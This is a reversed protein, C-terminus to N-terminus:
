SRSTMSSSYRSSVWYKGEGPSTSCSGRSIASSARRVRESTAVRTERSPCWTSARPIVLWRSVVTPKSRSFPWGRWRAMTHCSRRVASRQRSSSLSPCAEATRAVVPRTRSEYKEAVLIFHISSWPTASLAVLALKAVTSEHSSQIRVPPTSPPTKRVSADLADRVSNISRTERSQDASISARKPTSAVMSAVMSGDADFKPTTLPSTTAGSAPTGM